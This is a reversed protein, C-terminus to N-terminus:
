FSKLDKKVWVYEGKIQKYCEDCYKRFEAQETNNDHLKRGDVFSVTNMVFHIHLLPYNDTHVSFLIQYRNGYYACVYLALEYLMPATFLDKPDPSIIFQRIQRGETKDYLNKITTFEDVATKVNNIGSGGTYTNTRIGLIDSKDREAYKIVNEVSYPSTYPDNVIKFYMM